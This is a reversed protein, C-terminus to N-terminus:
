IDICGDKCASIDPVPLTSHGVSGSRLVTNRLFDTARRWTDNSIPQAGADDWDPGLELLCRSSETATVFRLPLVPRAGRTVRSIKRKHIDWDVLDDDHGKRLTGLDPRQGFWGTIPKLPTVRM